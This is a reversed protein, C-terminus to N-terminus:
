QEDLEVWDYERISIQELTGCGNCWVGHRDLDIYIDESECNECAMKIKNSM